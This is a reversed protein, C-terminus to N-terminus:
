QLNRPRPALRKRWRGLLWDARRKEFRFKYFTELEATNLFTEPAADLSSARAFLWHISNPSM